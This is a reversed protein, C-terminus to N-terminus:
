SALATTQVVQQSIWDYTKVLGERLPRSPAWNLAETILTNDSKRGNVGVPGPINDVHVSKGAIEGIMMALQNISVMEESGINVVGDFDSRMLRTTAELCEDIYLFTRTQTGPGWVEITGSSPGLEAIKRCLAAPAKERGGTWTGNPGFINHYRAMRVTLGTNRAFSHYLRESFLKEWGYESDPSAPYATDERCDPANPDTQNREPYVCASSSYFLRGVSGTAAANAVNLNIMASGHMVAADHDGTFIYGAGGMDAALQYVEDFDGSFVDKCFLPDRLDGIKEINARSKAYPSKKIDAMTVHHSEDALRTVLHNGIFGGGGLVLCKV